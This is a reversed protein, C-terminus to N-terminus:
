AALPSDATEIVVGAKAIFQDLDTQRYFIRRALKLYKPGRGEHRWTNLTGLTFSLGTANLYAAAQPPSLHQM